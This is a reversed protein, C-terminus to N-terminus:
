DKFAENYYALILKAFCEKREVGTSLSFFSFPKGERLWLFNQRM